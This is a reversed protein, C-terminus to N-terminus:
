RSGAVIRRKVAQRWITNRHVGYEASLKKVGEGAAYRAVVEDMTTPDLFTQLIQSNRAVPGRLDIIKARGPVQDPPKGAEFVRRVLHKMIGHLNSFYRTLDVLHYKNSGPAESIGGFRLTLFQGDISEAGSILM